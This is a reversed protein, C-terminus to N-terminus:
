LTIFYQTEMTFFVCKKWSLAELVRRLNKLGEDITKTAIMVNDSYIQVAHILLVLHCVTKSIIAM